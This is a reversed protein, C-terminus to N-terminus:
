HVTETEPGFHYVRVKGAKIWSLITEVPVGAERSAQEVTLWDRLLPDAPERKM